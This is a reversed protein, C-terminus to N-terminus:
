QLITAATAIMVTADSLSFATRKLNGSVVGRLEQKRDPLVGGPLKRGVSGDLAKNRSKSAFTALFEPKL